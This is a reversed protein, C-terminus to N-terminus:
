VFSQKWGDGDFRSGVKMGRIFSGVSWALFVQLGRGWSNYLTRLDEVVSVISFSERDRNIEGECVESAGQCFCSNNVIQM